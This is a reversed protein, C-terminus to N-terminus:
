AKENELVKLIKQYSTEGIGKWLWYPTKTFPNRAVYDELEKMSNVNHYRMMSNAIKNGLVAKMHRQDNTM